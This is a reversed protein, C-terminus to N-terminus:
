YRFRYRVQVFVERPNFFHTGGFTLSNDLLFRRNALNMATVSVSVSEGFSRGLSLDATTHGPLHPPGGSDTFGSGYYINGNAWTRWPLNVDFGTDFTNRQDHDLYFYGSSPAFNILGGNVAGRGEAFQHSFAAHVQARGGFFRPSRLTAEGGRIRAGQVTLPFFINSNGVNNHDFFNRIKNHFYDVDLTWGHAPINLGFQFEEDREGHLPVFGLGQELVFQLLPGSATSLPPAEYYRGYFGRLVWDVRPIRIAV